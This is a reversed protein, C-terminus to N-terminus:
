ESPVGRNGSEASEEELAIKLDQMAHREANKAMDGLDRIALVLLAVASVTLTTIYILLQTVDNLVLLGYSEGLIMLGVLVLLGAMILRRRFRRPTQLWATEDDPQRQVKIEWAALSIATLLVVYGFIEAIIDSM